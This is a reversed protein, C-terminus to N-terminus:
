RRGGEGECHRVLGDGIIAQWGERMGPESGPGGRGFQSQTLKLVCTGEGAGPALAFHVISTAPGGFRVALDGRMDVSKMPDIAYITSWIVGAGGASEEVLEGGLRASFRMKADAGGVRFDAPWWRDPEDFLAHWVREVGAEITWDLAVEAVGMAKDDSMMGEGQEVHDALDLVSAAARLALPSLWRRQMALIPAANLHNMRLRGHRRAIVLGAAELVGLHKMVGFRTMAFGACLASTTKAGGALRDILARRTPDALAQWLDPIAEDAQRVAYM